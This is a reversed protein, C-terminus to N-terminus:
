NMDGDLSCFLEGGGGGYGTNPGGGIYNILLFLLFHRLYIFSVMVAPVERATVLPVPLPMTTAVVTTAGATDVLPATTTGPMTTAVTAVRVVQVQVQVQTVPSPSPITDVVARSAVKLANPATSRRTM